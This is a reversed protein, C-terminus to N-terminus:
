VKMARDLAKQILVAAMQEVHSLPADPFNKRITCYAHISLDMALKDLAKQDEDKIKFMSLTAESLIRKPCVTSSAPTGHQVKSAATIHTATTHAPIHSYRGNSSKRM